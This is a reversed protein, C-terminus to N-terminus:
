DDNEAPLEDFHPDFMDDCDLVVNDGDCIVIHEETLKEPENEFCPLWITSNEHGNECAWEYLEKFTM